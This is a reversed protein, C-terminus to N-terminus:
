NDPLRPYSIKQLLSVGQRNDMFEFEGTQKRYQINFM